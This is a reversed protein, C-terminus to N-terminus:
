QQNLVMDKSFPMTTPVKKVPEDMMWRDLARMVAQTPTELLPTLVSVLAFLVTYSTILNVIMSVWYPAGAKHIIVTVWAGWTWFVFGHVLYIMMIHPHLWLIIKISLFAQVWTSLEVLIQLGISFLLITLGPEFYEPYEPGHDTFMIPKGTNADPHISHEAVEFSWRSTFVNALPSGAAAIFAITM